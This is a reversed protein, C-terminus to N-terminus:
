RARDAPCDIMTFHVLLVAPVPLTLRCPAASLHYKRLRQSIGRLCARAELDRRATFLASGGIRPVRSCEPFSGDYNGQGIPAPEGTLRCDM